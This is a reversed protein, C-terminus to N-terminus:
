EDNVREQVDLILLSVAASLEEQTYTYKKM